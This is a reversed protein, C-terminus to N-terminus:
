PFFCKIQGKYNIQLDFTNYYFVWIARFLKQKFLPKTLRWNELINFLSVKYNIFIDAQLGLYVTLKHPHQKSLKYM